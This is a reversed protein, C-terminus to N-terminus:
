HLPLSVLQTTKGNADTAQVEVRVLQGTPVASGAELFLPAPHAPTGYGEPPVQWSTLVESNGAQDVTVLRCRLPGTVDTISFSLQTGWPRSAVVVDLRVKTTPDTTGVHTGDLGGPGGIGPGTDGGTSTPGPTPLGTAQTGVSSRAVPTNTHHGGTGFMLVLGVSVMVAAVAAAAAILKVETRSRRYAVLNILQALGRGDRSAEEAQLFAARDVQALADTVPLLEALEAACDNCDVLHMEFRTADADDLVGLAYGAVDWREECTTTM